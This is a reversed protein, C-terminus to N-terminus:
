HLAEHLNKEGPNKEERDQHEIAANVEAGFLLFLAFIYFYLLLVIVKGVSGYTASYNAFRGVYFNFLLSGLIWGM